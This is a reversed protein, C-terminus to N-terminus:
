SMSSILRFRINRIWTTSCPIHKIANELEEAHVFCHGTNELTRLYRITLARLRRKDNNRMQRQLDKREIGFRTDPFYAVDIKFLDIPNDTEEGTVPDLLADYAQYDEYLLYPNSSIESLTHSAREDDITKKWDGSLKLKGSLIRKYQFPKLNLMCLHLFQEETLGYSDELAEKVDKLLAAYKRYTKNSDPNEILALFTDYYEDQEGQQLEEILEDLLFEQKDWNL